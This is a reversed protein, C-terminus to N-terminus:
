LGVEAARPGVLAPAKQAAASTAIAAKVEDVSMPRPGTSM